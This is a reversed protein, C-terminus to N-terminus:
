SLSLEDLAPQAERLADARMAIILIRRPPADNM